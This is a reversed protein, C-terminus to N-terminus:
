FFFFSYFNIILFTLKSTIFGLPLINFYILALLIYLGFPALKDYQVVWTYPLQMRLIHSGDLPHIPILNFVALIINIIIGIFAMQALALSFSSPELSTAVGKATAVYVLGWALALIINSVPGALTVLTNDRKFHTFKRTNVPTPKAWGFTFAGNTLIWLGIPVAITGLLDIHPLPNLTVRGLMYATDDGLKKAMWGHAAEHFCIAMLLPFLMLLFTQPNFNM